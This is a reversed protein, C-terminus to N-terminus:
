GSLRATLFGTIPDLLSPATGLVNSVSVRLRVLIAVDRRLM